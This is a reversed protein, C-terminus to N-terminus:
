VGPAGFALTEACIDGLTCGSGCHSAGEGVMVPFPKHKSPPDLGKKDANAFQEKTALRGYRFYAWLWLVSGFLVTVPWVINMIWMHQPHNTEDIVIIIASAFGVLLCALSLIHLWDPIM